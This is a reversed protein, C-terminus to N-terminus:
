NTKSVAPQGASSLVSADVAYGRAALAKLTCDAWWRHLRESPHGVGGVKLSPDKDYDPHECAVFDIVKERNQEQLWELDERPIPVLGIILLAAKNAAVAKQMALIGHRFVPTVMGITVRNEMKMVARHLLAVSATRSELPWLGIPGGPSETIEGSRIRINPPVMYSGDQMTLSVIWPLPALDRFHHSYFLGYIVLPTNAHPSGFYRNVRLRSQYSGYAGTGFNLLEASPLSQNIFHSYTQDDTVSYGQTLSCGVVLIRPLSVPKNGAPDSRRGDAEFSMPANGPEASKWTGARNVWGMDPDPTAWSDFGVNVADHRPEFGAVRLGIEIIVLSVAISAVVLAAKPALNRLASAAAAM